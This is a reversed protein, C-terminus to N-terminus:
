DLEPRGHPRPRALREAVLRIAPASVGIGLHSSDVEIHETQPCTRDVCAAPSVIADRASYLATVPVELSRANRAAVEAELADLDYGKARYRRATVTYKPGGIIPSALTIVQRILGPRDRAVERALYGGLSWGVLQIPGGDAFAEVRELVRPLLKRVNGRNTGLGWGHVDHGLGSLARRLPWTSADSTLFGPLVMVRARGRPALRRTLAWSPPFLLLERLADLEAWLPVTPPELPFADRM